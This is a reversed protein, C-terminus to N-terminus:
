PECPWAWASLRLSEPTSTRTPRPASEGLASRARLAPSTDDAGGGFDAFPGVDDHVERRVLGGRLDVVGVDFGIQGGALGQHKADTRMVASKLIEARFLIPKPM